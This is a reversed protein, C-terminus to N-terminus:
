HDQCDWGSKFVTSVFDFAIQGFEKLFLINEERNNKLERNSIFNSIYSLSTKINNVDIEQTATQSFLSIPYTHGDWLDSNDLQLEEYLLSSTGINIDPVQPYMNIVHGVHPMQPQMNLIHDVHSM